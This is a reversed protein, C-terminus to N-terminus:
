EETIIVKTGIGGNGDQTILRKLEVVNENHMRICGESAKTGISEPAHTGHIGIGNWGTDLSIFWPGYAGAIEGKGDGFDHTWYSSDCIEEVRFPVQASSVGTKAGEYKYHVDMVGGWSTPTTNDGSRQKDGDNRAIAIPYSKILKDKDFVELTFTKKHIHITFQGQAKPAVPKAESSKLSTPEEAAKPEAESKVPAPKEQPEKAPEEKLQQGQAPPMAVEPQKEEGFFFRYLGYCGTALLAILLVLVMICGLNNKKGKRRGLSSSM